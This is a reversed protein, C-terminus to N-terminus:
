RDAVQTSGEVGIQVVVLAYLLRPPGRPVVACGIAAFGPELPSSGLLILPGPPNVM